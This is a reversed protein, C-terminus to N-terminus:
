KKHGPIVQLRESVQIHQGSLRSQDQWPVDVAQSAVVGTQANDIQVRRPVFVLLNQELSRAQKWFQVEELFYSSQEKM